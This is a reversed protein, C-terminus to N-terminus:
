ARGDGKPRVSAASDWAWDLRIMTDKISSESAQPFTSSKPFGISVASFFNPPASPSPSHHLKNKLYILKKSIVCFFQNIQNKEWDFPGAFLFSNKRFSCRIRQSVILEYSLLVLFYLHFPRFLSKGLHSKDVYSYFARAVRVMDLYNGSGCVPKIYLEPRSTWAGCYYEASNSAFADTVANKEDETSLPDTISNLLDPFKPVSVPPLPAGNPSCITNTDRKGRRAKIKRQLQQQQNIDPCYALLSSPDDNDDDTFINEFTEDTILPDSSSSIPLLSSSSFLDAENSLPDLFLDPDISHVFHQFFFPYIIAFNLSSFFMSVSKLFAFPSFRFFLLSIKSNRKACSGSVTSSPAARGERM